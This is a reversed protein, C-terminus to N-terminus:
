LVGARDSAALASGFAGGGRFLGSSSTRLSLGRENHSKNRLLLRARRDFDRKAALTRARLFQKAPSHLLRQRIGIM